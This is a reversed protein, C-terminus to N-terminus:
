VTADAVPSVPIQVIFTGSQSPLNEGSIDATVTITITKSTGHTLTVDGTWDTSVTFFTNTNHFDTPNQLVVDETGSTNSIVLVCTATCIPKGNSDNVADASTFVVDMTATDGTTGIAVTCNEASQIASFKINGDLDSNEPNYLTTGNITLNGVFAAYGVGVILTACLLFAIIISRRNKM